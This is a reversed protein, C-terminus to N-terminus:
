AALPLIARRDALDDWQSSLWAARAKATAVAGNQTWRAGARKLRLAAIQKAASEVTGSGILYGQQRFRAYDMRKQNNTFYSVAYHVAKQAAPISGLSQCERILDEIQGEWLLARTQQLWALYEPTERGFVAEAIPPLYESAHYWDVIQVAQPFHREILKWIWAAGDCVFVLEEYLDAKRQCATAWFLDGFQDPSQIDCHYTIERAQLDNQEGVRRAHHRRKEYSRIPEVQYWAITKLERWEGKCPTMVGDISGYLRGAQRGHQRLRAQLWAEDQSQQKWEEERAKQLEGFRETEKRLTNDSVRFLLFREILRSSEAFATEVGALALLEALGATVEGAALHMHEDLPCGGRGCERCLYYGRKYSVRGFVSLIVAKRRFLYRQKGGCACDREKEQAQVVEDMQELYRKLGEAGVKQLLERMGTEIERIDQPNSFQSQMEEAAIEAMKEIVKTSFEM